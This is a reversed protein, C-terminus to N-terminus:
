YNNEIFMRKHFQLLYTWMKKKNGDTETQRYQTQPKGCTQNMNNYNTLNDVLITKIKSM